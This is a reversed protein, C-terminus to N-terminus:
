DIEKKEHEKGGLAFLVRQRVFLLLSHQEGVAICTTMYDHGAREPPVARMM